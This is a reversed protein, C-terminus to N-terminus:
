HGSTWECTGTPNLKVQHVSMFSLKRPASSSPPILDRLDLTLSSPQIDSYIELSRPYASIGDHFYEGDGFDILKVNWRFSGEEVMQRVRNEFSAPTVLYRPFSPGQPAFDKTIVPCCSPGKLWAFMKGEHQGSLDPM